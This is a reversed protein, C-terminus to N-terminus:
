LIKYNNIIKTTSFNKLLPTVVKLVAGVKEAQDKKNKIQLDGKTIAIVKPKIIKVLNFYDENNEFFPLLVVLDVMSFSSLIQARQRQNHFPTRKKKKKIFMDSELAVILFDGENKAKKLFQLHGYHIVDFCGGVLVTKKQQLYLSLKKLQQFNIINNM